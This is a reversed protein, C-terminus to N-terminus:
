GNFNNEYTTEIEMWRKYDVDKPEPIQISFEDLAWQKVRNVYGAFEKTDLDATSNGVVQSGGKPFFIVKCNFKLKLAEHLEEHTHGTDIAIINLILHYYKNASLSRVAQNKKIEIVYTGEPLERLKKGIEKHSAEDKAKYLYIRSM